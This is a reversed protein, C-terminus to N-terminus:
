ECLNHNDVSLLSLTDSDASFSPKLTTQLSQLIMEQEKYERKLKSIDTQLNLCWAILVSNFFTAVYLGCNLDLLQDKIEKLYDNM